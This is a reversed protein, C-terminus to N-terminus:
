SRIQIEIQKSSKSITNVALALFINYPINDYVWRGLFMGYFAIFSILLIYLISQYYNNKQLEYILRKMVRFHYLLFLLFGIIGLEALQVVYESHAEEEMDGVVLFNMIGIGTFPNEKFFDYGMTYFVARGDFLESDDEANKNNEISREIREGIYTNTIVFPMAFGITLIFFAVISIKKIIKGKSLLNKLILFFIFTLLAKKSATLIIISFVFLSIMIFLNRGVVVISASFLFLLSIWAIENSNLYAGYRSTESNVGEFIVVFMLYLFLTLCYWKWQRLIDIKSFNLRIGFYILFPMTTLQFFSLNTEINPNNIPNFLFTNLNVWVMWIFFPFDFYKSKNVFGKTLSSLGFIVFVISLISILRGGGDYPFVYAHIPKWLIFFSLFFIFFYKKKM